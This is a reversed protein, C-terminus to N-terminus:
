RKELEFEYYRAHMPDVSDRLLELCETRESSGPPSLRAVTQLVFKADPELERLERCVQLQDALRGPEGRARLQDILYLFHMWPSQDAPETFIANHVLALDAELQEDTLLHPYARYLVQRHHWASHNSFNAEILSTAFALDRKPDLLLQEAIFARYGWCHFNRSDAHLLQECLGLEAELLTTRKEADPGAVALRMCWKRHYWAPYSKPNRQSICDATLALEHALTPGALADHADRAASQTLVERRLNWLTAFDPNISLLKETLLMAQQLQEAAPAREAAGPEEAEAEAGARTGSDSAAKRIAAGAELAKASLALFKRFKERRAEQEPGDESEEKSRDARKRNHM